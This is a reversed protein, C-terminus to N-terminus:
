TQPVRQEASNQQWHRSKRLQFFIAEGRSMSLAFVIVRARLFLCFCKKSVCPIRPAFVSRRVCFFSTVVFEATIMYFTFPWSLVDSLIFAAPNGCLVGGGERKWPMKSIFPHITKLVVAM